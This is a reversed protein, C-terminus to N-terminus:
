PRLRASPYTALDAEDPGGVLVVRARYSDALRGALEAFRGHPWRRVNKGHAAPGIHMGVIPGDSPDAKSLIKDAIEEDDRAIFVCTRTDKPAVGIAKILNLNGELESAEGDYGTKVTYWVGAGKIDEGVRHPIGALRAFLSGKFANTGTSVIALDFRKARMAMVFRVKEYLGHRKRRDFMIVEDILGSGMVPEAALPEGTLLTIRVGPLREKLAKLAPTFLIIDGIGGMDIALIQKVEDLDIAGSIEKKRM